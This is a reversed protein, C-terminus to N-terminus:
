QVRVEHTIIDSDIISGNGRDIEAVMEIEIESTIETSTTEAGFWRGDEKDYIAHELDEYQVEVQAILKITLIVSVSIENLGVVTWDNIEEISIFEGGYAEGDALDGTYVFALNPVAASLTSTLSEDFNQGNLATEAALEGESGLDTSARALLDHINKLPTLSRENNVARLFAKDETVVYIQQVNKQCWALLAEVVFGDPFEKSNEGDFPPKRDFYRKFIISPKILLARHSKLKCEHLLFNLFKTYLRASLEEADFDFHKPLLKPAVKRWHSLDKQTDKLERQRTLVRERIQRQIEMLTIDTTHLVIHHAEIQSKLLEMARNTSSHGLSRYVQTDLFVHRSILPEAPIADRKYQKQVM